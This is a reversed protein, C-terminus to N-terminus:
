LCWCNNSGIEYLDLFIKFYHRLNSTFGPAEVAYKNKGTKRVVPRRTSLLNAFMKPVNYIRWWRWQSIFIRYKIKESLGRKNQKKLEHSSLPNMAFDKFLMVLCFRLYFYIFVQLNGNDLLHCFWKLLITWVVQILAKAPMSFGWKGCVNWMWWIEWKECKVTIGGVPRVVEDDGLCWWPGLCSQNMCWIAVLPLLLLCKEWDWSRFNDLAMQICGSKILWCGSLPTSDTLQTLFTKLFTLPTIM